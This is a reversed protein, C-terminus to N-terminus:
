TGDMNNCIAPNGEEKHSPQKWMKTITFLAAIFMPNCIARQSGIKVEQPYIGQVPFAPDYSQEIKLRKSFGGFKKGYYNCWNVNGSLTCLSEKREM